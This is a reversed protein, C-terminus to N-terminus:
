ATGMVSLASAITELADNQWPADGTEINEMVVRLFAAAGAPTTPYIQALHEEAATKAAWASESRNRLDTLGTETDWEEGAEYLEQERSKAARYEREIKDKAIDGRALLEKRYSDIESGGIYGNRWSVLPIPRHGHKESADGEALDLEEALRYTEASVTKLHAIAAFIPDDQTSAVAPVSLAPLTAAGALIARRTSTASM